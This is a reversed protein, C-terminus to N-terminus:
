FGVQFSRDIRLDTAHRYKADGWDKREEGPAATAVTKGFDLDLTLGHGVTGSQKEVYLQYSGDKIATVVKPALRFRFTLDRTEGPEISIFAGFWRKGLENGEDPVGPRRRPDKIKDEFMAGDVGVLVSGEPAFVRTYTRYRTTKWDFRGKHDYTIRVTGVFGDKDPAISYAIKRSVAPDSKLSALNADIVQVYDVPVTRMRGAWDEKEALAQLKSDKMAFQVHGEDMNRHLIDVLGLLKEVPMAMLREITAHALDGVIDKREHYAVGEAVFGKEVAFELEDVLNEATFTKDDVTVPGTFRVVDVALRTDFAVIGDIPPAPEGKAILAEEAYFKEMTQAATPFDPSWNADRLYWQQVGLHSRIPAPAQPRVSKESPGDLAYVDDTTFSLLEADQVTAIGFVGLFGGTPRLETDNQFFVLYRRADPYGLVSPVLEALPKAATLADKASILRSRLSDIPGIFAAPLEDIPVENMAAIAREIDELAVGIQEGRTAFDALMARKDERTLNRFVTKRDPLAGPLEGAVSQGMQVKSTVSAAIDLVERAASTAAVGSALLREASSIYSGIWPLSAFPAFRRVSDQADLFSENATGMHDRAAAFDLAEAREQSAELAAQGRLGAGYARYGSFVFPLAFLGIVLVVTLLAAFFRLTGWLIHYRRVPRAALLDVHKDHIRFHMRIRL